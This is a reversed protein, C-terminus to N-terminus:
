VVTKHKHLQIYINSSSNDHHIYHATKQPFHILQSRTGDIFMNSLRKPTNINIYKHQEMKRITRAIEQLTGDGRYAKMLKTIMLLLNCCSNQRGQREREIERKGERVGCVGCANDTREHTMSHAITIVYFDIDIVCCTFGNVSTQISFSYIIALCDCFNHTISEMDFGKCCGICNAFMKRSNASFTTLLQRFVVTKSCKRKRSQSMSLSDAWNFLFFLARVCVCM